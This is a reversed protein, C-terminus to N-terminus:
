GTRFALMSSERSSMKPSRPVLPAWCASSAGRKSGRGFPFGFCKRLRRMTVHLNSPLAITSIPLSGRWGELERMGEDLFRAMEAIAVRAERQCFSFLQFAHVMQEYEVFTTQVGARRARLALERVQDRLMEGGGATIFLRPLGTLDAELPSVRPDNRSYDGAAMESMRNVLDLPLFDTDENERLSQRWSDALDVWPSMLVAGLGPLPLGRCQLEKLVLVCM